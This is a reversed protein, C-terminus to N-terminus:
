GREDAQDYNEQVWEELKPPTLNPDSIRAVEEGDQFLLLTPLGHVQLDIMLRRAKPAEVKAVRLDPREEAMRDVEPELALCPRCDPGWVDVLVSGEAVVDWFDDRTAEVVEGM